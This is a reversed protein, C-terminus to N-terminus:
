LDKLENERMSNVEELTDEYLQMFAGHNEQIYALKEEEGALYGKGWQEMELAKESLKEAGINLATSKVSHVYTTYDKWNSEEFSNQIQQGKEKAYECYIKLYEFYIDKSQASYKM